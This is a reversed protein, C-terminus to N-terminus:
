NARAVALALVARRADGHADLQLRIRMQDLMKVMPPGMHDAVVVQVGHERLFSAVAAHHGGETGLDHTADWRSRFLM